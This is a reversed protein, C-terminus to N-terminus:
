IRARITGAALVAAIDPRRCALNGRGDDDILHRGDYLDYGDLGWAGAEELFRELVAPAQPDSGFLTLASRSLVM